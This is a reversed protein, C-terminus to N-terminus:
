LIACDSQFTALSFIRQWATLGSGGAQWANLCDHPDNWEMALASDGSIPRGTSSDIIVITPVQTVNLLSMLVPTSGLAAFGTGHMFSSEESPLHSSLSVVFLTMSDHFGTALRKRLLLAHSSYYSGSGPQVVFFCVFRHRRVLDTFSNNSPPHHMSISEVRRKRRHQLSIQTESLLQENYEFVPLSDPYHPEMMRLIAKLRPADPQREGSASDSSM